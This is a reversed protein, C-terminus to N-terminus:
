PSLDIYAAYLPRGEGDRLIGVAKMAGSSNASPILKYERHAATQLAFADEFSAVRLSRVRLRPADLVARRSTWDILDTVSSSTYPPATPEISFSYAACHEVDPAHLFANVHFTDYAEVMAFGERRWVKQVALNGIQTSVRVRAFGNEHFWQLAIRVLSSYIGNRAFEPLVGNLVFEGTSAAVDHSCCLFGVIRGEHRALWTIKNSPDGLHRIAWECYGALVKEADLVPNSHYHNRYDRFVSAVVASLEAMDVTSATAISVRTNAPAVLDLNRLEAAYYVLTDAHIVEAGFAGLKSMRHALTTPTRIIALDANADVIAKWLRDPDADPAYGRVVHFGFRASDPASYALIRESTTM